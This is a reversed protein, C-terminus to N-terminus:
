HRLLVDTKPATHNLIRQLVADAVGLKVGVKALIKRMDHLMFRPVGLRKAM